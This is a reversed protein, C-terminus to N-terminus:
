FFFSFFLYTWTVEQSVPIKLGLPCTREETNCVLVSRHTNTNYTGVAPVSVEPSAAFAQHRIVSYYVCFFTFVVLEKVLGKETHLCLIGCASLAPLHLSTTCFCQLRSDCICAVAGQHVSPLWLTTFDRGLLCFCYNIEGISDLVFPVDASCPLLVATTILVYSRLHFWNLAKVAIRCLRYCIKLLAHSRRQCCYLLRHM